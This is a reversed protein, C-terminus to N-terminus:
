HRAPGEDQGAPVIAEESPEAQTGQSEGQAVQWVVVDVHV